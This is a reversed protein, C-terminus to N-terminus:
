IRRGFGNPRPPSAKKKAPPPAPKPAAPTQDAPKYLACIHRAARVTVALERSMSHASNIANLLGALALAAQPVQEAREAQQEKIARLREQRAAQAQNLVAVAKLWQGHRRLYTEVNGEDLSPQEHTLTPAEQESASNLRTQAARSQAVAFGLKRMAAKLSAALAADDTTAPAAGDVKSSAAMASSTVLVHDADKGLNVMQALAINATRLAAGPYYRKGDSAIDNAHVAALKADAVKATFRVLAEKLSALRRELTLRADEVQESWGTAEGVYLQVDQDTPKEPEVLAISENVEKLDSGAQRAAATAELLKEGLPFAADLEALLFGTVESTLLSHCQLSTDLSRNSDDGSERCYDQGRGSSRRNTNAEEAFPLEPLLLRGVELLRPLDDPLESLDYSEVSKLARAVLDSSKRLADHAERLRKSTEAHKAAHEEATKQQATHQEIWANQALAGHALPFAHSTLRDKVRALNNNTGAEAAKAERFGKLDEFTAELQDRLSKQLDAVLYDPVPPKYGEDKPRKKRPKPQAAKTADDFVGDAIKLRIDRRALQKVRERKVLFHGFVGAALLVIIFIAYIM